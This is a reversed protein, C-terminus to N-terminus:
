RRSGQSTDRFAELNYDIVFLFVRHLSSKRCVAVARAAVDIDVPDALRCHAKCLLQNQKRAVPAPRASTSRRHWVITPCRVDWMIIATTDHKAAADPMMHLGDEASMSWKEFRDLLDM